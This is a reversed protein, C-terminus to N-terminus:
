GRTAPALKTLEKLLSVVGARVTIDHSLELLDEIFMLLDILCWNVIPLFSVPYPDVFQLDIGNPSYKHYLQLCASNPHSHESLLGYNDKAEKTGHRQSQYEEYDSIAKGIRLPDPMVVPLQAARPEYKNGHKRAWLNGTSAVTLANWAQGWEKRQFHDKLNRSMYCANAAWEFVHRSIIHSAPINEAEALQVLACLITRVHAIVSYVYVKTGRKVLEETPDEKPKTLPRRLPPLGIKRMGNAVLRVPRIGQM